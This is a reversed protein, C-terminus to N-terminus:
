CPKRRPMFLAKPKARKALWYLLIFVAAVLPWPYYEQQPRLLSQEQPIKELQNITSYITRLSQSDTARFYRGGTIKAIEKLSDEDLDSTPNLQAFFGNSGPFYAESNLGITYVKIKELRALKAAKLPPLVGANNAGDTLLILIRSQSPVNQLHKVSLGLADGISTRQGALGVTADEIRMRVTARDYTLPTQLYAREGFLILGIRDGRRAQVFQEAAQKVMALRSTPRNNYIIDELAMSGSIDLALIINHGERSLPQPEGVWRPGSAALVLLFWVLFFVYTERGLAYKNASIKDSCFISQYFPVQLASPLQTDVRPLLFWAIFPLLLALLVWPSALYFMVQRTTKDM